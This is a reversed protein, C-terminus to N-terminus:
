RADALASARPMTIVPRRPLNYLGLQGGNLEEIAQRKIRGRPTVM